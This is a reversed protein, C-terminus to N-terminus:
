SGRISIIGVTMDDSRGNEAESKEGATTMIKEAMTELSDDWEESLMELLWGCEEFSQVIGDSLMIVTDGEEINFKIQEADLARMIGIPVTKSHLKFLNGGRKIFSPAAGSKIFCGEGTIMDLEMLDITASCEMGKTRVFNNLMQLALPVSVGSTLMRELFVACVQSTLAAERGSGMGDSILTYFKDSQGEFMSIIDGNVAATNGGGDAEAPPNQAATCKVYDASLTRATRLTMSVDAGDIAFEPHTMKSGCVNEVATKIDEAGMRVRSLDLGRARILKSRQGYVTVDSACFDLYQLSRKLKRSLDGDPLMEGGVINSADGLLLAMAEYDVAFVETKDSKVCTELTRAYSVNIDDIIKDMNYCRSILYDPIVEASVRGNAYLSKTMRSLADETKGRERDWCVPNMNCRACVCECASECIRRMESIGPRRLRDSLNYFVGSMSEFTESLTKLKVSASKQRMEMMEAAESQSSVTPVTRSFINLKPIVAYKIIPSIVVSVGIMEPVLKSLAAFGSTYIGWCLGLVCAASVSVFASINWFIGAAMGAIAYVPAFLPECAIGCILGAIGGRMIGGSWSVYLAAAFSLIVGLNLGFFPIEKVALVTTFLVALWGAECYPTNRMHRETIGGYVFTLIPCVVAAFLAAFLDYYLYGGAIVNYASVFCSATCAVAMRIYVNERFPSNVPNVNDAAMVKAIRRRKQAQANRSPKGRVGVEAASKRAGGSALWKSLLFRALPIITYVAPYIWAGGSVLSGVMAGTWCATINKTLACMLAIGFPHVGMAFELQSFTVSLVMVALWKIISVYNVSIKEEGDDAFFKKLTKAVLADLMVRARMKQAASSNEDKALKIKQAM